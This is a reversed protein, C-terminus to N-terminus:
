SNISEVIDNSQVTIKVTKETNNPEPAGQVVGSKVTVTTGDEMLLVANYDEAGNYLSPSEGGPVYYTVEWTGVEPDYTTIDTMGQLAKQYPKQAGPLKYTIEKVMYAKGYQSFTKVKAIAM